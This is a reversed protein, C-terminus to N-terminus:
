PDVETPPGLERTADAEIADEIADVDITNSGRMADALLSATAPDMEHRHRVARRQVPGHGSRDLIATSSLRRQVPDEDHLLALLAEAADPAAHELLFGANRQEVLKDFNKYVVRTYEKALAAYDKTSMLDNLTAVGMGMLAAIEQPAKNVASLRVIQELKLRTGAQLKNRKRAM